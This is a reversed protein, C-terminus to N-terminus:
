RKPDEAGQDADGEERELEDYEAKDSPCRESQDGTEHASRRAIPSLARDGIGDDLLGDIKWASASGLRRAIKSDSVRPSAATFSRVARKSMECGATECCRAVKFSAPRTFRGRSPRQM